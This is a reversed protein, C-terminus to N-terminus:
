GPYRGALARRMKPTLGLRPLGLRRLRPLSATNLLAFAGPDHIPNDSLDLDILHHLYPSRALSRAGEDGIRNDALQLVRLRAAGAWRALAAAGGSGIENHGLNLRAIDGLGPLSTVMGIGDETLGNETLDLSALTVVGGTPPAWERPTRVHNQAMGLHRLNALVPSSSLYGLGARTLENRRLELSDLNSLNSAEAITRAALDGVANDSLDLARLDRFRPSWALREVGRDGIRNRGVNLAKLGGLYPSDVLCRALRDDIHQAYVTVATLRALQPCETLRELTSGVDLFRIHRVPALRFLDDARRLFTRGDINVTEIFGRRFETWGAIGRLPDSWPAHFRALLAAERDALTDRRPDGASMRSLAVQVRIFEGRPHGHEDLWDAFILRPADDDPDACVRDLFAAEEPGM